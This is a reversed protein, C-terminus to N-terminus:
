NKIKRTCKVNHVAPHTSVDVRQYFKSVFNIACKKNLEIKRKGKSIGLWTRIFDKEGDYNIRKKKTYKSVLSKKTEGFAIEESRSYQLRLQRYTVQTPILKQKQVYTSARESTKTRPIVKTVNGFERIDRNRTRSKFHAKSMALEIQRRWMEINRYAAKQFFEEKLSVLNVDSALFLHKKQQLHQHYTWLETRFRQEMSEKNDDNVIQCRKKWLSQFVRWILTTVTKLWAEGSYRPPLRQSHAWDDQCLMFHYSLLGIMMNKSGLKNQSEWLRNWKVDIFNMEEYKQQMILPENWHDLIVNLIGIINEDTHIKRLSKELQLRENKRVQSVCEHNCEWVHFKNEECTNCLPCIGTRSLGWQKSKMMTHHQGNIIKTIQDSGNSASKLAKGFIRANYESQSVLSLGFHKFSYDDWDRQFFNSALEEDINSLLPNSTSGIMVKTAELVPYTSNRPQLAITSDIFKRVAEDMLINLQQPLTADQFRIHKDQHSRVYQLRVTCKIQQLMSRIQLLIDVDNELAHKSKNDVRDQLKKLLSECDSYLVIKRGKINWVKDILQLVTLQAIVAMGEARFSTILEANGDVQASGQVLIAGSSVDALCWAQSPYKKRLSGDGAGICSNKCIVNRIRILQEVTLSIGLNLALPSSLNSLAYMVPSLQSQKLVPLFHEQMNKLRGIVHEHDMDIPYICLQPEYTREGLGKNYHFINEDIRVYSIDNNTFTRWVQHTDRIWKGLPKMDLRPQVVSSIFSSWTELWSHPFDPANPWKWKSLRSNRGAKIDKKVTSRKNLVVIDSLTLINLKIRIHNCIIKTEDSLDSDEVLKMIFEDNERPFKYVKSGVITLTTRCEELFRWIGSFWVLTTYKAYKSHSLMFINRGNGCELEMYSLAIKMLDATTGGMRMHLLVLKIKEVNIMHYLHQYGLGLRSCPQFMMNRSVNRQIGHANLLIPILPQMLKKCTPYDLNLSVVKYRLAPLLFAKYALIRDNGCLSSHQIQGVWHKIITEITEVQKDTNGSVSLFHGLTKHAQWPELRPVKKEQENFGERLHLQGELEEASLFRYGLGKREYSVLYFSCKHLALRHGAAFLLFAHLQEDNKLQMLVTNGDQVCDATVGTATDDIFFDGKKVVIIKGDFSQFRMGGCKDNLIRSITDSTNIWLPGSWGLGQGAGFIRREKCYAYFQESIGHGTRVYFKQNKLIKVTFEATDREVGWKGSEVAALSPIIRDYCAKADDDMFACPTLNQRCINYYLIKNIVISLAQRRSRGGYQDDTIEHNQEASRMMRKSYVLKSFMQLESEVVHITRFKHIFPQGTKKEILSTVSRKWRELVVRHDLCVTMIEHMVRLIHLNGDLLAKYHGYHRGSPSSSTTEDAKRYFDLYEDFSIHHSVREPVRRHMYQILLKCEEPLAEPCDFEGNLIANAMHRNNFIDDWAQSALPTELAQQFHQQQWGLMLRVITDKDEIKTWRKVDSGDAVQIRTWIKQVDLIDPDPDEYEEAAPVLIALLPNGKKKGLTFQIRRFSKSRKEGNMIAKIYNHSKEGFVNIKKGYAEAQEKQMKMREEDANEHVERYAQRAESCKTLCYKLKQLDFIGEETCKSAKRKMYSWHNIDQIADHLKISWPDLVSKTVATSKKESSRMICSIHEDLCEIESLRASNMGNKIIAGKLIEWKECIRHSKIGNCMKENYKQVRKPQSSKLRRNTAPQIWLDKQGLFSELKLDVVLPRHDSNNVYRHPAIGMQTIYPFLDGTMWMHDIPKNGHVFTAPLVTYREEFINILGIQSFSENSQEKDDLGENLDAMLIVAFGKKIDEQIQKRICKIIHKRPDEYISQTGLYLQQQEWATSGGGVQSPKPNVRYLTYIKLSNIKGSFQDCCWRGVEDAYSKDYYQSIRGYFGSAVGGPQYDVARDFIGTNKIQLSGGPIANEFAGMMGQILESNCSNVNVEALGLYHVYCQKFNTMLSKFFNLDSYPLGNCNMFLLRTDERNPAESVNSGYWTTVPGRTCFTIQIDKPGTQSNQKLLKGTYPNRTIKERKRGGLRRRKCKRRNLFAFRGLISM